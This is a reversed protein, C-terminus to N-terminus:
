LSNDTKNINELNEKLLNGSEINNTVVDTTSKINEGEDIIVDTELKDDEIKNFCVDSDIQTNNCADNKKKNKNKEILKKIFHVIICLAITILMDPLTTGIVIDVKMLLRYAIFGVLWIVLNLWNMKKNSSDNKLLYFDAIQIAVM